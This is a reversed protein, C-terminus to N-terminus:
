NREEDDNEDDGIEPRSEGDIERLACSVGNNMTCNVHCLYDSSDYDELNLFEGHDCDMCIQSEPWETIVPGTFIGLNDNIKVISTNSLPIHTDNGTKDDHINGDKFGLKEFFLALRDELLEAEDSFVDPLEITLKM